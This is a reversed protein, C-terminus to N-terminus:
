LFDYEGVLM